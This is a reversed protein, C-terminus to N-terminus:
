FGQNITATNFSGPGQVVTATFGNGVQTVNATNNTGGQTISVTNTLLGMNAQAVVARDATGNQVIDIDGLTGSQEVDVTNNDGTMHVETRLFGGDHQNVAAINGFGTQEVFTGAQEVIREQTVLARNLTGTQSVAVGSRDSNQIQVSAANGDGTQVITGDVRGSQNEIVEASNDNGDQEIRAFANTDFAPTGLGTQAIFATNGAGVGQRIRADNIGFNGLQNITATSSDGNQQITATDQAFVPAALCALGVTLAIASLHRKM